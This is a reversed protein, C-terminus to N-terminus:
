HMWPCSVVSVCYKNAEIIILFSRNSVSQGECPVKPHSAKIHTTMSSTLSTQCYTRLGSTQGERWCCTWPWILWWHRDTHCRRRGKSQEVTESNHRCKSPYSSSRRLMGNIRMNRGLYQLGSRNGFFPCRRWRRRRRWCQHHMRLSHANPWRGGCSTTHRPCSPVPAPPVKIKLLKDVM